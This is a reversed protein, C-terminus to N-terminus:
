FGEAAWPEDSARPEGLLVGSGGGQMYGVEIDAGASHGVGAGSRSILRYEYTEDHQTVLLMLKKGEHAPDSCQQLIADRHHRQWQQETATASPGSGMRALLAQLEGNAAVAAAGGSTLSVCHTASRVEARRQRRKSRRANEPLSEREVRRDHRRFMPELKGAVSELAAAKAAAPALGEAGVARRYAKEAEAHVEPLVALVRRGFCQERDDNAVVSAAVQVDIIEELRQREAPDLSAATRLM